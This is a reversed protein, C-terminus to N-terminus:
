LAWNYSIEKLRDAFNAKGIDEASIVNVTSHLVNDTYIDIKGVVQGKSVPAKVKYDTVVFNVERTQGKKGFIYADKEPYVLYTKKKGGYLIFEDNLTVSKDLVAQNKYNSFGYDFLSIASSFRNDSSDAGLVASVLRM